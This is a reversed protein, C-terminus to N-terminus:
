VKRLVSAAKDEHVITSPNACFPQRKMIYQCSLVWGSQPPQGHLGWSDDEGKFQNYKILILLPPSALYSLNRSEAVASVSRAPTLASFSQQVQTTPESATSQFYLYKHLLGWSVSEFNM